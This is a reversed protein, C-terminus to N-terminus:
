KIVEFSVRYSLDETIRVEVLSSYGPSYEANYTIKWDVNTGEPVGDYKTRVYLKVAEEFEKKTLRVDNTKTYRKYESPPDLPKKVEVPTTM